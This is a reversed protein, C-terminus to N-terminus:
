SRANVVPGGGLSELWAQVQTPIQSPWKPGGVLRRVVERRAAPSHMVQSLQFLRRDGSRPRRNVGRAYTRLQRTWELWNENLGDRVAPALYPECVHFADAIMEDVKRDHEFTNLAASATAQSPHVRWSAWTDPVRVTDAALGVRIYWHVDSVSDWRTEFLGIRSFLSRRILMETISYYVQDGSLCLLGDYPARRVHPREFLDPFSRAMLGRKWWTNSIPTGTEDVVILACHAVDCEPHRQLARVTKEICDAAMGDDSTAIYVFEGRARRVGNNWNAYMGARPAQENLVRTDKQALDQL